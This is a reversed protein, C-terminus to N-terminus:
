IESIKTSKKISNTIIRTARNRSSFKCSLAIDDAFQSINLTKPLNTMIKAVYLIYLLPSLVGGQPVGKHILRPSDGSMSTYIIRESTLFKIFYVLNKPCGLSALNQLLIDIIVSDFAGKVDLFAALLEKKESFSEKIKINLNTLNNLCSMGKRFGTQSNPILNNNEAWWQLRNKVLTEFLKCLCSYLSIPRVNDGDPKDIFHVFVNKWDEPFNMKQYMENFIDLLLLKYKLPLRDIIDFDIGDIGPSSKKNKSELAINFEVFDFQCNLFENEDCSPIWYPDTQVWPPSIKNLM